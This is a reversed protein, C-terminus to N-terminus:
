NGQGNGQGGLTGNVVIFGSDHGHGSPNRHIWHIIAGSPSPPYSGTQATSTIYDGCAEVTMGVALPQLPGFAISYVVELKDTPNPGITIEFHNHGNRDPFLQDITGSVHGRALFANATSKEWTIVQQNDVPIATGHSMCEPIVDALAFSSFVLGSLVLGILPFKM